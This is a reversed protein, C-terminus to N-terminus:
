SLDADYRKKSEELHEDIDFGCEILEYTSLDSEKIFYEEIDEAKEELLISLYQEFTDQDWSNDEITQAKKLKALLEIMSPQMQIDITVKESKEKM